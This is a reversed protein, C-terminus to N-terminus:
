INSAVHLDHLCDDLYLLQHFKGGEEFIYRVVITLLNLKLPKNLTLNADTNFKIKM